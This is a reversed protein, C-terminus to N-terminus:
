FLLLEYAPHQLPLFSTCGLTFHQALMFTDEFHFICLHKSLEEHNM